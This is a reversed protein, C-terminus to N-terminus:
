NVEVEHTSLIVRLVESEDADFNKRLHVHFGDSYDCLAMKVFAKALTLLATRNAYVVAVGDESSVRFDEEVSDDYEFSIRNEFSRDEASGQAIAVRFFFLINM